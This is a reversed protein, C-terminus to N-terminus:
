KRARALPVVPLSSTAVFSSDELRYWFHSAGAIERIADGPVVEVERGDQTFKMHGSTIYILADLESSKPSTPGGKFNRAVRVSNGPFEYRSVSLRIADPPAAALETATRASIRKGGQDWEATDTVVADARRVVRARAAENNLTGTVTWAIVTAPGSGRLVGSPYSVADGADLNVTAGAVGVSGSGRLMFIATESTIAHIMTGSAPFELVRITGTPFSYTKQLYRAANAPAKDVAAQGWVIQVGQGMPGESEWEALPLPEVTRGAIHFDGAPSVPAANRVAHLPLGDGMAPPAAAAAPAAGAARAAPGLLQPLVLAAGLAGLAVERRTARIDNGSSM